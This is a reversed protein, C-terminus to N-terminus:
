EYLKDEKKWRDLDIKAANQCAAMYRWRIEPRKPCQYMRQAFCGCSVFCGYKNLHRNQFRLIDEETIEKDFEVWLMSMYTDNHGQCSMITTLGQENFYRVLDQVNPDLKSYDIDKM